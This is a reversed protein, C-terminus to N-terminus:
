LLCLGSMINLRVLRPYNEIQSFWHFDTAHHLQNVLHNVLSTFTTNSVCVPDPNHFFFVCVLAPTNPCQLTIFVNERRDVESESLRAESFAWHCCMFIEVGDTEKNIQKVGFWIICTQPIVYKPEAKTALIFELFRSRSKRFLKDNVLLSQHIERLNNALM